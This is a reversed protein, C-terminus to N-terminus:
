NGRLRPEYAAIKERWADPIAASQGAQYDYAVLVIFGYAAVAGDGKRVILHEMDYSKNGLRSTRSYVEVAKDDLKLPLKYDISARAIILAIDRPPGGDWLGLDRSYAIRGVEIYTLYKVNNVHGLVDIDGYRIDVTIHHRFDPISM